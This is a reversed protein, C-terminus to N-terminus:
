QGSQDAKSAHNGEAKWKWRIACRMQKSKAMPNSRADHEANDPVNFCRRAFAEEDAIPMVGVRAIELYPGDADFLFTVELGDAMKRRYPQISKGRLHPNDRAFLQMRAAAVPLPTPEDIM